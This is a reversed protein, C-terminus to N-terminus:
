SRICNKQEHYFNKISYYYFHKIDKKKNKLLANKLM